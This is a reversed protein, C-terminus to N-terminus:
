MHLVIRSACGMRRAACLQDKAQSQRAAATSLAWHMGQKKCEKAEKSVVLGFAAALMASVGDTQAATLM